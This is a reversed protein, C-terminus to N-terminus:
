KAENLNWDYAYMISAGTQLAEAREDDAYQLLHAILGERNDGFDESYWQYIKSVVIKKNNLRVGNDSNIFAKANQELLTETNDRTFAVSALKPCGISACNVAYHIRPDQWIPRLIDHEINDLSLSQGNVTVVKSKWPGIAFLGGDLKIKRISKVPYHDLIIQITMANYLNVWYAFQAKKDYNLPNINTLTNLYNKLADRDAAAVDGYRVKNNDRTDIYKQLFDNWVAHDIASSNAKNEASWNKAFDNAHTLPSIFLLGAVILKRIVSQYM